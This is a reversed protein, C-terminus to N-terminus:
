AVLKCLNVVTTGPTAGYINGKVLAVKFSGTILVLRAKHTATPPTQVWWAGHARLVRGGKLFKGPGSVVRFVHKGNTLNTVTVDYYGKTTASGDPLVTFVTDDIGSLKVPFDCAQGAALTYEYPAGAHKKAASASATSVPLVLAVLLPVAVALVAVRMKM